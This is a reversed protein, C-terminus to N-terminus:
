AISATSSADGDTGTFVLPENEKTSYEHHIYKWLLYLIGLRILLAFCCIFIMLNRQNRLFPLCSMADAMEISGCTSAYKTQFSSFNVETNREENIACCRHLCVRRFRFASNMESVSKSITIITSLSPKVKENFEIHQVLERTMKSVTTAIEFVNSLFFVVTTCCMAYFVIYAFRNSVRRRAFLLYLVAGLVPLYLVYCILYLINRQVVLEYILVLAGFFGGLPYVIRLILRIQRHSLKIPSFM